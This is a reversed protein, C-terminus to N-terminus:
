PIHRTLKQCYIYRSQAFRPSYSSSAPYIRWQSLAKEIYVNDYGKRFIRLFLDDDEYGCLREDFGGSVSFAERSILSASPLIFMNERICDSLQQKPHVAPMLNKLFSRCVM